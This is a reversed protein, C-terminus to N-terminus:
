PVALFTYLLGAADVYNGMLEGRNNIAALGSVPEGPITFTTYVGDKLLYRVQGSATLALRESAM